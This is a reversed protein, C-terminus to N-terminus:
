IGVPGAAIGDWNRPVQQITFPFSLNSFCPLSSFRSCTTLGRSRQGGTWNAVSSATPVMLYCCGCRGTSCPHVRARRDSSHRRLYRQGSAGADGSSQCVVNFVHVLIRWFHIRWRRVRGRFASSAFMGLHSRSSRIHRCIRELSTGRWEECPPLPLFAPPWVNWAGSSCWWISRSNSRRPIRAGRAM